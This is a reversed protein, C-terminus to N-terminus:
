HLRPQMREMRGSPAGCELRLAGLDVQEKIFGLQCCMSVTNMSVTNMSVSNTRCTYVLEPPRMVIETFGYSQSALRM